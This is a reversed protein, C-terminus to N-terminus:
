QIYMDKPSQTVFTVCYKEKKIPRMERSQQNHACSGHTRLCPPPFSLSLSFSSPFPLLSLLLSYPSLSYPPPLPVIGMRGRM